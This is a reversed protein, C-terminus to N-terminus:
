RLHKYFFVSEQPSGDPNIAFGPISGMETWGLRRYLREAADGRKTDLTLLTLGAARAAAEAAAMLRTGLGQGRARRHVILKAIDGRHPQNPAWAPHVQVSGAIGAADRAVLVAVGPGADTLCERWWALAREVSLPPLFSVAGGANVADALLEALARLDADSVPRTLPAIALPHDPMAAPHPPVPSGM